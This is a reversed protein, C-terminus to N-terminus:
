RVVGGEVRRTFDAPQGSWDFDSLRFGLFGTAQVPNYRFVLGYARRSYEFLLDTDIEDGSDLNYATQIGVRFPGYIQQIIGASLTVRDVDRDFLFPSNAGGVFSRSYTLNFRTYDFFPRSFHGFQGEIGASATLTGQSDDSTYYTAVGRLGVVADFFPVVPRPTYRLGETATPPLGEGQWLRFRRSLAASGQFRFLKALRNPDSSDFLDPRDTTASVYQAALQYTLNIDTDGLVFNPSLLVAGITYQVDQFGLSGNFLRDRYSYELNLLHNGIARQGRVSARLRNEFNELDLGPLSATARVTTRPGIAGSLDATLGFNSPESIDGGSENLWREIYFQPAISLRFPSDTDVSFAREVFVGDRDRGDTGIGTPLPNLDNTDLQGRRLIFRERFIPVSLGQDFVVRGNDLFLEDEIENLPTLTARNSRFEIEPPSFPDNTLRLQEAEWGDANFDLRDAEFRLRRVQGGEGGEIPRRPDTSLVLGGPSTVQSISAEGRARDQLSPRGLAAVDNPLPVAFDEELQNLVLTGSAGTLSGSGQSINYTVEDGALVQDRRTYLVDGEARAFRNLLNVWLRNAELQADSFQVRVAGEARIIQQQPDFTQFDANLYLPIGLAEADTVSEANPSDVTPAQEPDEGNPDLSVAQEEEGVEGGTEEEPTEEATGDIGDEPPATPRDSWRIGGDQWLPVFPAIEQALLLTASISSAGLAVPATVVQPANRVIAASLPIDAPPFFLPM